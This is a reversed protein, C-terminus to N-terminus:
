PFGISFSDRRAERVLDPVVSDTGAGIPLM